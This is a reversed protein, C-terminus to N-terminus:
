YNAAEEAKESFCGKESSRKRRNEQSLAGTLSCAVFIIPSLACTSDKRM